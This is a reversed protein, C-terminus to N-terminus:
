LQDHHQNRGQEIEAAIAARKTEFGKVHRGNIEAVWDTVKRYSPWSTGDKRFLNRYETRIVKYAM